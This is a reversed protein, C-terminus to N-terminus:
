SSGSGQHVPFTLSFATGKGPVSEVDISAGHEELIGHCISLGLGSGNVKTSFFPDFIRGLDHEDIGRGTDSITLLVSGDAQGDGVRGRGTEATVTITRSEGDISQVANQLLNLFVQHLQEPDGYIDPLGDAYHREVNIHQKELQTGLLEVTRDLLDSVSVYGPQQRRPRAFHLLSQVLNNIRSVEDVVITGFSERFEPDQYREKLLQAFTQISVLPNKIEHAVGAALTGVTALRDMRRVEQEFQKKETLDQFVLLAGASQSHADMLWSTECECPFSQDGMTVTVELRPEDDHKDLTGQLLEAFRPLLESADRGVWEGSRVGLMDAGTENLTVIRLCADVTLVGRQMHRLIAAYHEQARLVEDYLRTNELAVAVQSTLAGLLDLDDSTFANDRTKEGLAIYGLVRGKSVLPCVLAASLEEFGSLLGSADQRSFSPSYGIEDKLVLAARARALALVPHDHRLRDPPILDTSGTRSVLVYDGAGAEPLYVAGGQSQLIIPIESATLAGINEWGYTGSLRSGLRVLAADHDYRGRFLRHDVFAAIRRHLPAVLVALALALILAILPETFGSVTGRLFPFVALVALLWAALILTMVAHITFTRLAIGIDMLRYRFIAYSTALTWCLTWAGGLQWLDSSRMFFPLVFHALYAAMFSLIFGALSYNLQMREHGSPTSLRSRWLNWTGWSFVVVMYGVYLGFLPGFVPRKGFDGWEVSAQFLPTCSLVVEIVAATSLAMVAPGSPRPHNDEPFTWTFVLYCTAVLLGLVFAARGVVNVVAPSNSVAICFNAFNWCAIVFVLAAFSFHVPRTHRRGFVYIVLVLNAISCLLLILSVLSM